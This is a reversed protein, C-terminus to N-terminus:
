QLLTTVHSLCDDCLVNCANRRFLDRRKCILEIDMLHLELTKKSM